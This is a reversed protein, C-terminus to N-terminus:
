ISSLFTDTRKNFRPGYRSGGRGGRYVPTESGLNLPKEFNYTLTFYVIVLLCLFTNTNIM